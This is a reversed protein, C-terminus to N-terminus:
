QMVFETFYVNKVIDKGVSQNVRYLIEDKLQFKGEPGSVAETSKSSLLTIVADRLIPVKQTVMDHYSADELEFQVTVKLYRGPASLNVVFPEFPFLVTDVKETEKQGAEGANVHKGSLMVFAFIGGGSLLVSLGVIILILKLSNGKKPQGQGQEQPQEERIEEAM